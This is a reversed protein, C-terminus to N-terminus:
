SVPTIQLTIQLPGLTHIDQGAEATIDFAGTTKSIKEMVEMMYPMEVNGVNGTIPDPLLGDAVAKANLRSLFSVLIAEAARKDVHAPVRETYINQRNKYILKNPYLAFVTVVPEGVLINGAAQLRVAMPGQGKMLTVAADSFSQRPMILVQTEKNELGLRNVMYSNAFSFFDELSKVTTKEDQGARLVGSYIVQGSRFAVQGERMEVLGQRLKRTTEELNKVEAQLQDRLAVLRESEARSQSLEADARAKAAEVEVLLAKIRDREANNKAIEADLEAMQKHAAELEKSKEAVSASMNKLNAQLKDMGFLATRVNDSAVALAGLTLAAIFVGSVVTMLTSTHRPRLGFVSLRRKGLKYGLSDGIFAILGGMVALALILQLGFM